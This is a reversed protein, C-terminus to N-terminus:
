RGESIVELNVIHTWSKWGTFGTFYVRQKEIKTVLCIHSQSKYKVLDGVKVQWRVDMMDM